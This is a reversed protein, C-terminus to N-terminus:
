NGGDWKKSSRPELLSSKVAEVRSLDLSGNIESSSLVFVADIVERRDPEPIVLADNADLAEAIRELELASLQGVLFRDLIVLLARKSFEISDAAARTCYSEIQSASEEGSISRVTTM